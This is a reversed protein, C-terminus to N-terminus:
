RRKVFKVFWEITMKETIPITKYNGGNMGSISNEPVLKLNKSYDKLGFGDGFNTFTASAIIKNKKDNFHIACENGLGFPGLTEFGTANKILPLTQAGLKDLYNLLHPYKMRQSKGNLEAIQNKIAQSKKWYSKQAKVCSQELDLLTKM